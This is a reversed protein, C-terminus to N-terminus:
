VDEYRVGFENPRRWITKQIATFVAWKFNYKNSQFSSM